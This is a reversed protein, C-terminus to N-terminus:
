DQNAECEKILSALIGTQINPISNEDKGLMRQEMWIWILIRTLKTVNEKANANTLRQKEASKRMKDSRRREDELKTERM